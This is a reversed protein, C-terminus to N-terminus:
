GGTKLWRGDPQRTYEQGRGTGLTCGLMDFCPKCLNGWGRPTAADFMLNGFPKGCQDCKSLTGPWYKPQTM